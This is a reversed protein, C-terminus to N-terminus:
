LKNYMLKNYIYLIIAKVSFTEKRMQKGSRASYMCEYSSNSNRM